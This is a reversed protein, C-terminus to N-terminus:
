AAEFAAMARELNEARDASPNRALSVGLNVQRSAWRLHYTDRHIPGLKRGGIPPELGAIIRAKRERDRRGRTSSRGGIISPTYPFSSPPNLWM